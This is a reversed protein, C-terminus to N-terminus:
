VTPLTQSPLSTFTTQPDTIKPITSDVLPSRQFGFIQFYMSLGISTIFLQVLGASKFQNNRDFAGLLGWFTTRWIPLLISRGRPSSFDCYKNDCRCFINNFLNKTTCIVKEWIPTHSHTRSGHRYSMHINNKTLLSRQKNLRLNDQPTLRTKGLMELQLKCNLKGEYM